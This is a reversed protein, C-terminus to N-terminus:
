SWWGELGIARNLDQALRNTSTKLFFTRITLREGGVLNVDIRHSDAPTTSISVIDRTPASWSRVGKHILQGHGLSVANKAIVAVAFAWALYATSLAGCVICTVIVTKGFLARRPRLEIRGAAIEGFYFVFIVTAVAVMVAIGLIRLSAYPAFSKPESM